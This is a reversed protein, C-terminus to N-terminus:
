EMDTEDADGEKADEEKKFHEEVANKVVSDLMKKFKRKRLLSKVVVGTVDEILAEREKREM